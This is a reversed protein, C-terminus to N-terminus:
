FWVPRLLEPHQRLILGITLRLQRAFRRVEAAAANRMQTADSAAQDADSRMQMLTSLAAIAAAVEELQESGYTAGALLSAYPERQAAAVAHSASAVFFGTDGPIEENLGLAIEAAPDSVVTREVQRLSAYGGRALVYAKAQQDVAAKQEAMRQCREVIAVDLAECYSRGTTLYSSTIGRAELLSRLPEGVGEVGTLLTQTDILLRQQEVNQSSRVVPNAPPTEGSSQEQASPAPAPNATKEVPADSVEPPPAEPPPAVQPGPVVEAAVGQAVIPVGNVNVANM